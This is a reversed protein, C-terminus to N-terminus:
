RGVKRKQKDEYMRQDALADCEEFSLPTQLTSIAYGISLGLSYPLQEQEKYSQLSANIQEKQKEWYDSDTCFSVVEFEDGGCRLVLEGGPFCQRLANAIITIAHNGALHGYGDNVLKLGDMDMIAISFTGRNEFGSKFRALAFRNYLGTLADRMHLDDLQRITNQLTMQRRLNEISSGIAEHCIRYNYMEVPIEENIFALYGFARPGNHISYFLCIDGAQLQSPLLESAAFRQNYVTGSAKTYGTVAVIQSDPKPAGIIADAEEPRSGAFADGSIYGMDRQNMCYFFQACGIGNLLKKINEGLEELSSVEELSNNYQMMQRIQNGAEIKSLILNRCPQQLEKEHSYSCGTSKGYIIRGPEHEETKQLNGQMHQQLMKCAKMTMDNDMRDYGTIDPVFVASNASRNLSCILIDEPVRLGQSELELCLSIAQVDHICIIAQVDDTHSEKFKQCLEKGADISITQHFIRDEDFDIGMEPLLTQCAQLMQMSIIDNGKDLVVNIKRCHHEQVLHKLLENAAEYGNIVISPADETKYNLTVYPIKKQKLINSIQELMVQNGILNGELICGDFSGQAFLNYVFADGLDYPQTQNFTGYGTFVYLTYNGLQKLADRIGKIVKQHREFNSACTILAIKKTKTDGM